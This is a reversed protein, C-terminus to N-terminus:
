QHARDLDVGAAFRAQRLAASCPSFEVALALLKSEGGGAADNRGGAYAPERKAASDPPQHALEAKTAVINEGSVEYVRIAIVHCHARRLIFVEEPGNAAAAAVESDHGREFKAQVIEAGHM